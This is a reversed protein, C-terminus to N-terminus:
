NEKMRCTTNGAAWKEATKWRRHTWCWQEPALRILDEIRRNMEALLRLREAAQDPADPDPGFPETVVARYRM